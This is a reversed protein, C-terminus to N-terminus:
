LNHQTAAAGERDLFETDKGRRFKVKKSMTNNRGSVKNDKM